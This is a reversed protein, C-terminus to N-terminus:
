ISDKIKEALLLVAQVYDKSNNYHFVAARRAEDSDSWGNARLYNGVSFIADEVEFLNVVGDGNGDVAWKVYSSPLFQSMGFAGAWSGHLSFIPVPSIKSLKELYILENVAWNAKKEARREIEKYLNIIKLSDNEIKRIEKKNLEIYEANDAM